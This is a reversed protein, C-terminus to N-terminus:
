GGNGDAGNSSRPPASRESDRLRWMYDDSFQLPPPVIWVTVFAVVFAFPFLGVVAAVVFAAGVGLLLYCIVVDLAMALIGILRRYWM